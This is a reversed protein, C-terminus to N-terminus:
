NGYRIMCYIKYLPSFIRKIVQKLFKQKSVRGTQYIKKYYVCTSLANGNYLLMYYWSLHDMIAKSYQYSTEKDLLEMWAIECKAHKIDKVKSQNYTWSGPHQFRYVCMLDPLFHVKGNLSAYIRKPYDGVDAMQWWLPREIGEPFFGTKFMTSAWAVYLGGNIIIEDTTLDREERYNCGMIVRDENEGITWEAGHVCMVCDPHNELYDVQKQLKYPDIWYDDGECEAWYTARDIYEQYYPQKDEKSKKFNHPLYIGKIKDPYMAEYRRVIDATGDTSCDDIVVVLFPFDTIQMAFGKLADEIYNEHNYTLCRVFVFPRNSKDTNTM